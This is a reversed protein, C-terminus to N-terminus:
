SAPPCPSVLQHEASPLRYPQCSQRILAAKRRANIVTVAAMILTACLASVIVVELTGSGDDPSINFFSEIYGM